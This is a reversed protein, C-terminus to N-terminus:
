SHPTVFALALMQLVGSVQTSIISHELIATVFEKKKKSL